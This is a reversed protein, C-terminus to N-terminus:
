TNPHKIANIRTRCQRTVYRRAINQQPQFPYSIPVSRPLMLLVTKFRESFGDHRWIVRNWPVGRQDVLYRKARLARAQAEGACM